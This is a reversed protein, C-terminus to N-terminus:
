DDSQLAPMSPVRNIQHGPDPTVEDNAGIQKFLTLPGARRSPTHDGELAGKARSWCVHKWASFSFICRSLFCLRERALSERDSRERENGQAGSRETRLASGRVRCLAATCHSGPSPWSSATVPDTIYRTGRRGEWARDGGGHREVGRRMGCPTYLKKDNRRSLVQHPAGKGRRGLHVRLRRSALLRSLRNKKKKTIQTM